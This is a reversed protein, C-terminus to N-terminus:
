SRDAQVTAASLMGSLLRHAREEFRRFSFYELGAPVIGKPRALADLVARRFRERDMPDTLIGLQGNRVAERGGDLESAVVPIGCAMAELLVFGFGEGHSAMVFADALRHHDAKEAEPVHGAFVVRHEVGMARVKQQLRDRDSGDGAILYALNPEVRILDPMLEIVEDFGKYRERAVLRGLTMLVTKGQLGYRRLLEPNKAGPGYREAHVANPLTLM